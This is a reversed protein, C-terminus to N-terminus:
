QAWQAIIIDRLSGLIFLCAAALIVLCMVNVIGSVSSIILFGPLAVHWLSMMTAYFNSQQGDITYLCMLFINGTLFYTLVPATQHISYKICQCRELETIALNFLNLQILM